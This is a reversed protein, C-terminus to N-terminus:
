SFIEFIRCIGSKTQFIHISYATVCINKIQKKNPDPNPIHLVKKNSKSPIWFGHWCRHYSPHSQWFDVDVFRISYFPGCHPLPCFIRFFPGCLKHIHGLDIYYSIQKKYLLIINNSLVFHNGAFGVNDLITLGNSNSSIGVVLLGQLHRCELLVNNYLLYIVYSIKDIVNILM